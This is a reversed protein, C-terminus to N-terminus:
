VINGIQHLRLFFIIAFIKSNQIGHHCINPWFTKFIVFFVLKEIVKALEFHKVM